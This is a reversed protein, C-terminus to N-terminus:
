KGGESRALILGHEIARAVDNVDTAFAAFAESVTARSRPGDVECDASPARGSVAGAGRNAVSAVFRMGDVIGREYDTLHKARTM